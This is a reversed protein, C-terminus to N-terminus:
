TELADGLEDSGFMGGDIFSSWSNEDFPTGTASENASGAFRAEVAAKFQSNDPMQPADPYNWSTNSMDANTTKNLELNSPVLTQDLGNMNNSSYDFKQNPNYAYSSQNTYPNSMMASMMPDNMDIPAGALMQRSEMPLSMSLPNSNDNFSSNFPSGLTFPSPMSQQQSATPMDGSPGPTSTQERKMNPMTLESPASRKLNPRTQAPLSMRREETKISEVPSNSDSQQQPVAISASRDHGNQRMGQPLPYPSQRYNTPSQNFAQPSMMPNQFGNMQQMQSMNPSMPGTPFLPNPQGNQMTQGLASRMAVQNILYAQWRRDFQANQTHLHATLRRYQAPLDDDEEEYMEENM